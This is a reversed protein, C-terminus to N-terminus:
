APEAAPVAPAAPIVLPAPPPPFWNAIARVPRFGRDAAIELIALLGVLTVLSIALTVAINVLTM